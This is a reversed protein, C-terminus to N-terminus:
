KVANIDNKEARKIFSNTIFRVVMVLSSLEKLNM